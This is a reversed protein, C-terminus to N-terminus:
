VVLRAELLCTESNGTLQRKVLQECDNRPFNDAIQSDRSKNRFSQKSELKEGKRYESGGETKEYEQAGTKFLWGVAHDIEEVKPFFVTTFM